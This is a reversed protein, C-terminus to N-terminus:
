KTPPLPKLGKGEVIDSIIDNEIAINFYEEDIKVRRIKKGCFCKKRKPRVYCSQIRGCETQWMCANRFLVWICENM